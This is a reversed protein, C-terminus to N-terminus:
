LDIVIVGRQPSEDEEELPKQLPLEPVPIELMPREREIRREAEEREKRRMEEIIFADLMEEDEQRDESDAAEVKGRGLMQM